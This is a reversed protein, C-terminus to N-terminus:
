FKAPFSEKFSKKAIEEDILENAFADYREFYERTRIEEHGRHDAAGRKSKVKEFWNWSQIAYHNLHLSSKQLIKEDIPVHVPDDRKKIRNGCPDIVLLNKTLIARHISFKKIYKGRVIYKGLIKHSDLMGPQKTKDYKSRKKFGSIVSKPQEIRGSSGFMKWPIRICIIWPMRGKLYDKITSFRGRAYVFEDLDCVLFWKSEKKKQLFYKNYLEEQAWKTEDRKLTVIGKQVYKGLKKVSEDDSGNDILFFQDVGERLYHQIWEDIIHAENKFIAVVSFFYM